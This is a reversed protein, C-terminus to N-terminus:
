HAFSGKTSLKNRRKRLDRFLLALKDVKQDDVKGRMVTTNPKPRQPREHPHFSDFGCIIRSFSAKARRNQPALHTVARLTLTATAKHSRHQGHERTTLLLPTMGQTIEGGTALCEICVPGNRGKNGLSRTIECDSRLEDRSSGCAGSLLWSVHVSMEPRPAATDVQPYSLTFHYSLPSEFCLMVTIHQPGTLSHDM